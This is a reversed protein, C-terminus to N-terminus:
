SYNRCQMIGSPVVGQQCEGLCIMQQFRPGCLCVCFNLNHPRSLVPNIVFNQIHLKTAKQSGSESKLPYFRADIYYLAQAKKVNGVLSQIVLLQYHCHFIFMNCSNGRVFLSVNYLILSNGKFVQTNGVYFQVSLKTKFVEKRSPLDHSKNQWTETLKVEKKM